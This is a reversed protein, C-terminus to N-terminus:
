VHGETSACRRRHRVAHVVVPDIRDGAIILLFDGDELHGEVDARSPQSDPSVDPLPLLKGADVKLTFVQNALTQM